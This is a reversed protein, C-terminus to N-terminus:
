AIVSDNFIKDQLKKCQLVLSSLTPTSVALYPSWGKLLRGYLAARSLCTIEIWEWFPRTIGNVTLYRHYRRNRAQDKKTVWRCNSPCYNGNVDKRDIELSDQYGHAMAWTHFNEYKLWTCCVTVGRGGYNNYERANKNFCCRKIGEWIHYLRKNGNWLGHKTVMERALCGCSKTRGKKLHGTRVSVTKGCDCVCIWHVSKFKGHRKGDLSKVTLRGFRMNSLDVLAGM